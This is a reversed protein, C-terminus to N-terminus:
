TAHNNLAQPQAASTGDRFKIHNRVTHADAILLEISSDCEHLAAQIALFVKRLQEATWKEGAMEWRMIEISDRILEGDQRNAFADYEMRFEGFEISGHVVASTEPQNDM